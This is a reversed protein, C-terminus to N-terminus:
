RIDMAVSLRMEDSLNTEVSHILYNPFVLLMGPCPTVRHFTRSNRPWPDSVVEPDAWTVGGRPDHLLIDGQKPKALIYYVAIMIAGPHWHATEQELPNIPNQRGYITTYKKPTIYEEEIQNLRQTIQEKLNKIGEGPLDFYNGVSTQQLGDVLLKENLQEYDNLMFTWM